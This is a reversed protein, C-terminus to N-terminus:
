PITVTVPGAAASTGCANSALVQLTYSGPGVPGSISRTPGLPLTANVAGSVQLVFATPAAGTAAPAWSAHLTSGVRYAIVNSPAGPVGSCAQPVTLTVSNSSGSTGAGNTARLSLTYTGPSVGPVTIYDTLPLSLTGALSGSVDLLLATPAGGGFTNKWALSVTSGNVLGLLGAPPSPPVPVNVHIQIENSAASTQNGALARMRVYFSGPPAAFTFVPNTSGTPVSVITQGPSLGGELVYGTPAPGSSPPTWQLTVTPGAISAAFLSSPPQVQAVANVTLYVTTQNGTGNANVPFYTFTDPGTYGSTPTYTFGGGAALTLAGHQPAVGATASLASGGPSTDNGLVGPAAISLPTNMATTYSDSNGVPPPTAGCMGTVTLSYDAAGTNGGLAGYVVVTYTGAAQLPLTTIDAITTSAASEVLTGSPNYLQFAPNFQNSANPPVESLLIRVTAGACAAFTWPDPDGAPAQGTVTAGEGIAGGQDNAPVTFAGPVKLVQVEYTGVFTSFMAAKARLQFTGSETVKIRSLASTSTTMYLSDFQAPGTLYFEPTFGGPGLNKAALILTDGPSVGGVTWIDEDLQGNISGQAPVGATLPGQAAAPAALPILALVLALLRAPYM